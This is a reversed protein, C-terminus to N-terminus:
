SILGKNVPIEKLVVVINIIFLPAPLNFHDSIMLMWKLQEIKVIDINNINISIVLLVFFSLSRM